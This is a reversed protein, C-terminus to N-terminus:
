ALIVDVVLKRIDKKCIACVLKNNNYRAAMMVCDKCGYLHGCPKAVCNRPDKCCIACLHENPITPKVVQTAVDRCRKGERGSWATYSRNDFVTDTVDFVPRSRSCSTSGDTTETNDQPRQPLWATKRGAPELHQLMCARSDCNGDKYHKHCTDENWLNYGSPGEFRADDAPPLSRDKRKNSM